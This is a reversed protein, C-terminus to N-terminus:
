SEEELQLPLSLEQAPPERRNVEASNVTLTFM